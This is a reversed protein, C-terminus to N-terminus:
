EEAGGMADLYPKLIDEMPEGNYFREKMEETIKIGNIWIYERGDLAELHYDELLDNRLFVPMGEYVCGYKWIFRTRVLAVLSYNSYSLSDGYVLDLDPKGIIVDPDGYSIWELLDKKAEEITPRRHFIFGQEANNHNLNFFGNKGLYANIPVASGIMVTNVYGDNMESFPTLSGDELWSGLMLSDDLGNDTIFSAVERGYFYDYKIDRVASFTTWVIPVALCAIGILMYCIRLFRSDNKKVVIRELVWSGIAFKDEERSTFEAWFLFFSFVIGLHHGSFYVLASFVAFLTYPIVLFKLSYKSASCIVLGWLVIGIICFAVLEITEIQTTQLLTRDISFWSSSTLFCEGPFTLLACLACLWFSNHDTNTLYYTDQWPLVEILLLVALVFLILLGITREDKFLDGVSCKLGKERILEYSLCVAIGGSLVIGYASCLCLLGLLSIIRWPHERRKSMNMGIILLILMMLGYPRTIIGYQYFFFYSFPVCVKVIRPLRSQFLLVSASAVSIMAGITKLGIEFPVGLKAPIALILHWLPPHGEYHPLIFLLEKISADKAIMWAQAEDFWPEHFFSIFVFSISFFILVIWEIGKGKILKNMM